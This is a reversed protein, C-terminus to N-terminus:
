RLAIPVARDINEEGCSSVRVGRFPARKLPRGSRRMSRAHPPREDGRGPYRGVDFGDNGDSGALDGRALDPGLGVPDLKDPLRDLAEVSAADVGRDREA